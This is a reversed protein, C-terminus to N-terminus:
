SQNKYSLLHEYCMRNERKMAENREGCQEHCGTVRSYNSSDSTSSRNRSNGHGSGSSDSDWSGPSAARDGTKEEDRGKYPVLENENVALQADLLGPVSFIDQTNSIRKFPIHFSSAAREEDLGDGCAIISDLTAGKQRGIDHLVRLFIDKKNRGASVYVDNIDFFDVFGWMILKALAPALESSTVIMNHVNQSQLHALISRAKATWHFTRDEMVQLTAAWGLPLRDKTNADTLRHSGYMKRLYSAYAHSDKATASLEGDDNKDDVREWDSIHEVIGLCESEVFKWDKTLFQNLYEKVVTTLDRQIDRDDPSALPISGNILVLTDDIDWVVVRSTAALAVLGADAIAAVRRRKDAPDNLVVGDGATTM